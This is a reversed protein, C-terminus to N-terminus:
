ATTSAYRVIQRSVNNQVKLSAVVICDHFRDADGTPRSPRSVKLSAVVICDHFGKETRGHRRHEGGKLSAVVICDHFRRSLVM